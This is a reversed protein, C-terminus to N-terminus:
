TILSLQQTKHGLVSKEFEMRFKKLNAKNKEEEVYRLTVDFIRLQMRLSTILKSKLIGGARKILPIPEESVRFGLELSKVDMEAEIEFGDSELNLKDWNERKIARFGALPDGSIKFGV